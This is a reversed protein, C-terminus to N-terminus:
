SFYCKCNSSLFEKLNKLSYTSVSVSNTHNYFDAYSANFGEMSGFYIANVQLVFEREAIPAVASPYDPDKFYYILAPMANPDTNNEFFNNVIPFLVDKKSESYVFEGVQVEGPDPYARSYFTTVVGMSAAWGGGTCAWFIDSYENYPNAYVITGNVLVM